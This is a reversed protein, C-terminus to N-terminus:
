LKAYDLTMILYALEKALSEHGDELLDDFIGMALKMDETIALYMLKVYEDRDTQEVGMKDTEFYDQFKNCFNIVNDDVISFLRDQKQQETLLFAITDSFSIDMYTSAILLERVDAITLLDGTYTERFLFTTM